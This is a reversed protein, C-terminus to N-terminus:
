NVCIDYIITEIEENSLVQCQNLGDRVDILERLVSIESHVSDHINNLWLNKITSQCINMDNSDCKKCIYVVNNCINSAPNNRAVRLITKLVDTGHMAIGNFFKCFRQMLSIELPLCNSILAVINCHTMYPLRWIQRLAKRWAVCVDGVAKSSILWLPAGYFSCCYQKFLKCQVYPTVSGFDARFINFSSWFQALSYTVMSNKDTTSLRHGLHVAKNVNSISTNNVVISSQAPLTCERGRFILFLSKAGNFTVDYERAYAECVHVMIQLGKLSPALLELDDAYGLGGVYHRGIRCGYGCDNLRKFLGDMYVAFLIPSLVGGQKVGNKVNFKESVNNGWKVQLSQNTYMYMLLRLVLPSMCKDLLVRFLKCYKVRDFAKSADLMATYVNSRNANYYSIIETTAFTCHTTSINQKFGFQLDSSILADSERFLVVWDFIKNIISGLTIARYNNSCTLPKRKCKVIPVMTGNIMSQPCVGHVLMCNFVITLLVNLYHPGHVIHDSNLGEEGDSKGLKLKDVAKIVDNVSLVYSESNSLRCNIEASINQMENDDYPVSNYLNSYKNCFLSSIDDDGSAGDINSPNFKCRGKIKKAEKFLDRTRNDAIAEAMKQSRIINNNKVVFRVAQHYQARSIRHIEAVPGNRPQGCERWHRHWMLSDLRLQEVHDNWGPITKSQMKNAGSKPIHDESADLCAHIIEYYLNAIDTSHKTCNTDTCKILDNDIVINRLNHECTSKYQEKQIENAKWWAYRDEPMKETFDTHVIDINFDICLPVHDSHLHNDIINCSSVSEQMTSSVLFHDIRSKSQPGIYTYPVDSVNLDIGVSLNFKNIFQKLATVNPSRRSLDANLDGGIILYTCGHRHIVQEMESLVEVFVVHNDDQRFTDVPMYANLVLISCNPNLLVSVGCLRKHTCKVETIKANINTKYVIAVGGHPRGVLPTYEDMASNGVADVYQCIEKLKCLQSDYLCHEQIFLLDCGNMIDCMFDFKPGSKKFHKCNFSALKMNKIFASTDM